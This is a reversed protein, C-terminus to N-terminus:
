AVVVKTNCIRDHLTRNQDDFLAMLYGLFLTLGSLYEVVYRELAKLYGIRSGDSHIVKIRFLMKGITAGYKGLFLTTYTISFIVCFCASVVVFIFPLSPNDFKAMLFGSIFATAAYILLVILWLIIGDIIKAGFRVSFM